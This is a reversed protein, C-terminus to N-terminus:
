QNPERFKTVNADITADGYRTEAIKIVTVVTDAGVEFCARHAARAAALVEDFSGELTTELATVEHRIGTQKIAAIAADVVPLYDAQLPLVQVAGTVRREREM